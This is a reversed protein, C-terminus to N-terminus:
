GEYVVFRKGLNQLVYEVGFGSNYDNTFSFFCNKTDKNRFVKLTYVNLYDYEEDNKYRIETDYVKDGEKLDLAKLIDDISMYKM